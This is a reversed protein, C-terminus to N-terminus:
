VEIALSCRLGARGEDLLRVARTETREIWRLEFLRHLLADQGSDDFKGGDNERYDVTELRLNLELCEAGYLSGGLQADKVDVYLNWGLTAPLYFGTPM